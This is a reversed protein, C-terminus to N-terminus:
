SGATAARYSEASGLRQRRRQENLGFVQEITQPGCEVVDGLASHPRVENYDLRWAAIVAQAEAATQFWHENL